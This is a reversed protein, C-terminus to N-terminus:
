VRVAEFIVTEGSPIKRMTFGLDKLLNWLNIASMQTWAHYEMVMAKIRPAIKAFEESSLIHSETGEVDLKLFDIIEIKEKEMFSKLTMTEVEEFDDNKAMEETTFMTTNQNHYLKMVGCTNTIAMRHPKINPIKCQTVMSILCEMSIKSPEISHVVSAYDKFYYSTLGINAGIDVITLDKKGSLLPKYIQDLYIEKLIVPIYSNAFDRFYFAQLQNTQM